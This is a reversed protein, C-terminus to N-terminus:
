TINKLIKSFAGALNCGGCCLHNLQRPPQMKTTAPCWGCAADFPRSNKKLKFPALNKVDLQFDPGPLISEL